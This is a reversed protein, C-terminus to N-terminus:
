RWVFWYVGPTNMGADIFIDALNFFSGNGAHMEIFNSATESVVHSLVAGVGGAVNAGGIEIDDGNAVKAVVRINRWLGTGLAVPTGATAVDADGAAFNGNSGISQAM